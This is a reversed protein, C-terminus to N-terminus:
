TTSIACALKDLSRKREETLGLWIRDRRQKLRMISRGLASRSVVRLEACPSSLPTFACQCRFLDGRYALPGSCAFM